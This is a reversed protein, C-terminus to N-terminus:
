QYEGKKNAKLYEVVVKSNIKDAHKELWEVDAAAEKLGKQDAYNRAENDLPRAAVSATTASAGTSLGQIGYDAQPKEEALNGLYIWGSGSDCSVQAWRDQLTSVNVSAAFPLTAIAKADPQPQELLTTEYHKTFAPKGAEFAVVLTACLGCALLPLIKTKM